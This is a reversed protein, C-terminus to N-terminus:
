GLRMWGERDGFDVDCLRVVRIWGEVGRSLFPCGVGVVVRVGVLVSELGRRVMRISLVCRGGEVGEGERQWGGVVM